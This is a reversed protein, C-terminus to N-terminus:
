LLRCFRALESDPAFDEHAQGIQAFAQEATVGPPLELMVLLAMASDPPLAVGFRRDLQDERIIALSRADMHEIGSVNIGRPDGKDWTEMTVQRARHAFDMAAHRQRFPILLYCMSPRVTEVRLTAATVIGLTGEAGIFLDILDMEHEAFYGASLKAVDPMFYTPVPIRVRNNPLQIEFFGDSHALTEGRQIDLVDGSPLVVTIAEVWDRTSGYKFTAAGSANTAIAGGVFAGDFTPIPPYYLGKRALVEDLEGLTVGAQVRVLNGDISEIRDLRATSILIEGMPTAGGTLSSQAGIPLAKRSARLAAAVEAESTPIILATTRGGPYHAADELRSALVDPDRVINLTGATGAPPRSRILYGSM